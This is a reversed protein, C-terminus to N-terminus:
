TALAKRSGTPTRVIPPLRERIAAATIPVPVPILTALEHISEDIGGRHTILNRVTVDRDNKRPLQIRRLYRNAPDDLSHIVGRELLQAIATATFCKTISGLSFPTQGPDVDVKRELDAFGYGKKFLLRGGRVVGV